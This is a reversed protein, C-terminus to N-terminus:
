EHGENRPRITRTRGACGPEEEYWMTLDPKLNRAGAQGAADPPYHADHASLEFPFAAGCPCLAFDETQDNDARHMRDGGSPEESNRSACADIARRVAEVYEEPHKRLVCEWAEIVLWGAEELDRWKRADRERNRLFKREWFDANTHPMALRCFPCRHWFCGHVFIAIRRGPYAVDPRGPAANWNRRYGPLGAARLAQRLLTEPKTDKPRNARM